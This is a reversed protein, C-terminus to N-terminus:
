FGKKRFALYRVRDEQGSGPFDLLGTEERKLSIQQTELVMHVPLVFVLVDGM